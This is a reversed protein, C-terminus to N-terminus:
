PVIELDIVAWSEWAAFLSVWDPDDPHLKQLAPNGPYAGKWLSVYHGAPLQDILGKQEIVWHSGFPDVFQRFSRTTLTQEHLLIQDPDYTWDEDTEMIYLHDDQLTIDQEAQELTIGLDLYDWAWGVDALFQQSSTFTQVPPVVMDDRFPPGSWIRYHCPGGVPGYVQRVKRNYHGRDRQDVFNEISNFISKIDGNSCEARAPAPTLSLSAAFALSLTAFSSFRDM